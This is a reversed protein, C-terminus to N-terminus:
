EDQIRYFVGKLKKSKGRETFTATIKECLYRGGKIHFVARVDPIDDALFSFNYKKKGDIHRLLGRDITQNSRDLRLSFSPAHIANFDNDTMVSDIVPCPQLGPMLINGDWFAVYLCDFYDESKEQEGREIALGAKSQALEGSDYDVTDYNDNRGRRAGGFAMGSSGSYSGSTNGQGDDDDTWSVASGMEGCELFICPGHEDDTDDIWAPVIRIEMDDADADVMRKGFQAIPELRNYYKYWKHEQGGVNTTKVLESRYCFMIFYTDVDAAYFLKHGNSGARYGRSYVERTGGTPTSWSEYGSEKLAYAAVLLQVLTDYVVAENKHERIYWDCSRYAWFRNDNDAYALNKVGVYECADDKSVEATYENLVNDILVPATQQILRTSFAFSIRKAKHDITFEGFLLNEMQEFFETLSWHPLAIAFNRVGWTYPLTNCVLLFKYDTEEIETFDGTYGVAECILELLHLLYPQFTLERDNHSWTYAGNNQQDCFVENQINGSTNNVWPLAVTNRQPYPLWAQQPTINAPNLTDPYGLSLENLYIDDFSTNFNQESRGELFQTKVEVESIETVTITGSKIFNRDRIDCDFVIRTKEVDQRHLHGFIAINQPCDKLPFTITLTYSDSGTFLRNESIYDFSTNEKLYASQGNIQIEM